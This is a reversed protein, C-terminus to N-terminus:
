MLYDQFIERPGGKIIGRVGPYAAGLDLPPLSMSGKAAKGIAGLLILYSVDKCVIYSLTPEPELRRSTYHISWNFSVFSNERYVHM